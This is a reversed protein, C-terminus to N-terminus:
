LIRAPPPPASIADEIDSKYFFMPSLHHWIRGYPDVVYLEPVGTIRFAAFASRSPNLGIWARMPHEKLFPEVTERPEDTISLFRVPRGRFSDAMANMHPIMQRCPGCWTAWFEIVLSQGRLDKISGLSARPAQLLAEVGFEPVDGKPGPRGCAAAGLLAALSALFIRAARRPHL